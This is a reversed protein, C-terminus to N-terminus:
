TDSPQILTTADKLNLVANSDGSEPSNSLISRCHIIVLKRPGNSLVVPFPDHAFRFPGLSEDVLKAM